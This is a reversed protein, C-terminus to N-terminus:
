EATLSPARTASGITPQPSAGLTEPTGGGPLGHDSYDSEDKVVPSFTMTLSPDIPDCAELASLSVTSYSDMPAAFSTDMSVISEPQLSWSAAQADLEDDFNFFPDQHPSLGASTLSTTASAISENRKSQDSAKRELSDAPHLIRKKNIVAQAQSDIWENFYGCGPTSGVHGMIMMKLNNTEETLLKTESKLRENERELRECRQMMGATEKKKKERCKQAAVRNKQLLVQRKDDKGDDANSKKRKQSTMEEDDDEIKVRKDTLGVSSDSSSRSLGNSVPTLPEEVRIKKSSSLPNIFPNSFTTTMDGAFDFPMATTTNMAGSTTHENISM